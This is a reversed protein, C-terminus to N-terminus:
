VSSVRLSGHMDDDTHLLDGVGGDGALEVGRGVRELALALEDEVLGVAVADLHGQLQDVLGAATLHREDRHGGVALDGAQAGGQGHARGLGDEDGVVRQGAAVREAGGLDQGLGDLARTVDVEDERRGLRGVAVRARRRRLDRVKAL